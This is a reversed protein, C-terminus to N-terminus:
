RALSIYLSNTSRWMLCLGIEWWNESEAAIFKQKIKKNLFDPPSLYLLKVFENEFDSYHFCYLTDECDYIIVLESWTNPKICIVTGKYWKEKGEYDFTLHEVRELEDPNTAVPVSEFRIEVKKRKPKNPGPEM